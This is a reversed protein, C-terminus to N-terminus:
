FLKIQTGAQIKKSDEYRKNKYEEFQAVWKEPEYNVFEYWARFCGDNIVKDEIHNTAIKDPLFRFFENGLETKFIHAVEVNLDPYGSNHHEGIHLFREMLFNARKQADTFTECLLYYNPNDLNRFFIIEM